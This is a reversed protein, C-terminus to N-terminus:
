CFFLDKLVYEEKEKKYKSFNYSGLLLGEAIAYILEPKSFNQIQVSEIKDSKLNSFIFAGAKRLAEMQANIPKESEVKVFHIVQPYRYIILQKEKAEIKKEIYKKESDNLGITDLEVFDEFIIISSINKKIESIKSLSTKM